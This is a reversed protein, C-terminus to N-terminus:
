IAFQINLATLVFLGLPGLAGGASRSIVTLVSDGTDM